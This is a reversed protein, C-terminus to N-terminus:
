GMDTESGGHLGGAGQRRAEIFGRIRRVLEFRFEDIDGPVPDNDTEHPTSAEPPENVAALERLTRSVGALARGAREAEASDAPDLKDLTRKVADLASTVADQIQAAIAARREDSAPAPDAADGTAAGGTMAAIVAGRAAHHLAVPQAPMRRRQWGWERVRNDLTRNSIGMLAAIDRLPTLTREYLRKGEAIVEPAIEIKHVPM